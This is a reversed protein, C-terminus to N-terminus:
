MIDSNSLHYFCMSLHQKMPELRMVISQTNKGQSVGWGVGWTHTTAEAPQKGICELVGASAQRDSLVAAQGAHVRHQILFMSVLRDADCSM